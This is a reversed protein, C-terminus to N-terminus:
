EGIRKIRYRTGANWRGWDVELGMTALKLDMEEKSSTWCLVDRSGYRHPECGGFPFKVLYMDEPDDTM